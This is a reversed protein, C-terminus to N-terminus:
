WRIRLVIGGNNEFNVDHQIYKCSCFDTLSRARTCYKIWDIVGKPKLFKRVKENMLVDQVKALKDKELSVPVHSLTLSLTRTRVTLPVSLYSNIDVVKKGITAWPSLIEALLAEISFDKQKFASWRVASEVLM